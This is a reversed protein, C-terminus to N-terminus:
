GSAFGNTFERTNIKNQIFLVLTPHIAFRQRPYEYELIHGTLMLEFDESTRPFFSKETTVKILTDINLDTLGITKSRQMFIIAQEAHQEMVLSSGDMYAEEIAAQTLSMLDRLVGGSNFIIMERARQNILKEPDRVKFIDTFLQQAEANKLVDLYPLFYFNETNKVINVRETYLTVISGVIIAGFGYKNIEIADDLVPKVFMQSERLRDLSDFLFVVQKVSKENVFKSVKAFAQLVSSRNERKETTTFAQSSGVNLMGGIGIGGISQNPRPQHYTVIESNGYLLREFIRKSDSIESTNYGQLTKILELGAIAILAGSQLESIDTFLSIDIYIAKIDELENLAQQTLLLQTTKGSGIGGFLLHASSPRLAIKGTIVGVPNNPLNIYFGREVARQPNSTGEFASMLRRFFKLRDSM